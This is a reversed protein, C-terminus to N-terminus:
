KSVKWFNGVPLVSFDMILYPVGQEDLITEFKMECLNDSNWGFADSLRNHDVKLKTYLDSVSPQDGHNIDNNIDNAAKRMAEMNSSFPKGTLADICPVDGPMIEVGGVTARDVLDKYVAADVQGAKKEGFLEKVKDTYEEHKAELVAYGAVIAAMRKTNVYQAGIVAACTLTGVAVPALWFKWTLQVKEFRTHVKHEEVATRNVNHQYRDDDLCRVSRTTAKSSLVATGVVGAVGVATLITSSNNQVLRGLLHANKTVVTPLNM